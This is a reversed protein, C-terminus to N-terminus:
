SYTNVTTCKIADGFSHYSSLKNQYAGNWGLEPMNSNISGYMKLSFGHSQLTHIALIDHSLLRNYLLFRSFFATSNSEDVCGLHFLCPNDNRKQRGETRERERHCWLFSLPLFPTSLTDANLGLSGGTPYPLPPPPHWRALLALLLWLGFFCSNM